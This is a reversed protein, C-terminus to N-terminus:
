LGLADQRKKAGKKAQPTVHILFGPLAGPKKLRKPPM